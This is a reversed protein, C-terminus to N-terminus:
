ICWRGNYYYVQVLMDGCTCHLYFLDDRYNYEIHNVGMRRCDRGRCRLTTFDKHGVQTSGFDRDKYTTGGCFLVTLATAIKTGDEATLRDETGKRTRKKRRPRSTHPVAFVQDFAANPELALDSFYVRNSLGRLVVDNMAEATTDQEEQFDAPVDIAVEPAVETEVVYTWEVPATPPTFLANLHLRAAVGRLRQAVTREEEM